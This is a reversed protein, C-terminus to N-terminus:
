QSSNCFFPWNIAAEGSCGTSVAAVTRTRLPFAEVVSPGKASVFSCSPPYKRISTLSRFSAMRTAEFIGAARSPLISTRGTFSPPQASYCEQPFGVPRPGVVWGDFSSEIHSLVDVAEHQRDWLFLELDITPHGLLRSRDPPFIAGQIITFTDAVIEGAKLKALRTFPVGMKVALDDGVCERYDLAGYERWIRGAKQAMRRYVQLKKKPVPLVFGDIYQAMNRGGEIYPHDPRPGHIEWLFTLGRLRRGEGAASRYKWTSC